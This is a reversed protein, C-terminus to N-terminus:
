ECSGSGRERAVTGASVDIRILGERYDLVELMRGDPSVDLDGCRWWISSASTPIEAHEEEPILDALTFKALTRGAADYAVVIHGYGVNHWNDVTVLAGTDTLKVINPAVPSLLEFSGHLGFADTAADYKYIKAGAFKGKKAGAYGFVDGLSEGPTIRVLYTGSPSPVISESPPAWSDAHAPTCTVLLLAWQLRRSNM